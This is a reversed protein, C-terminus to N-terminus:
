LPKAMSGQEYGVTAVIGGRNFVFYSSTHVKSFDELRMILVKKSCLHTVTGISALSGM